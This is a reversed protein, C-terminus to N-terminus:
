ARAGQTAQANRIARALGPNRDIDGQTVQAAGPRGASASGGSSSSSRRRVTRGRPERASGGGVDIVPRSSEGGETRLTRTQNANARAQRTREHAQRTQEEAITRHQRLSLHESGHRFAWVAAGGIVLIGGGVIAVTTLSPLGLKNGTGANTIPSTGGGSLSGGGGTGTGTGGGTYTPPPAYGSVQFSRSLMAATPYVSQGIVLGAFQNAPGVYCTMTQGAYQPPLNGISLLRAATTQNYQLSVAESALMLVVQGSSNAVVGSFTDKGAFTGLFVGRHHQVTFAAQIPSNVYAQAVSLGGISLSTQNPDQISTSLVAAQAQMVRVPVM